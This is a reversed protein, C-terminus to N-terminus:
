QIKPDWFNRGLRLFCSVSEGGHIRATTNFDIGPEIETIYKKFKRIDLLNLTKLTHSIKMKDRVGDIEMISRELRLSSSMSIINNKEKNEEDMVDIESEDKGTLLRFKIKKDSNPLIFDFENNNDPTVELKKTKLSSLDIIGEVVKGSNDIVLQSYENGLGTARLFLLIAIRDGALLDDVDFGLEKVKNKLLVDVFKGNSLLNPSTLINEDYATLYEIKVSSKGNPYLIGQSPLEIIDYPVKYESPVYNPDVFSKDEM